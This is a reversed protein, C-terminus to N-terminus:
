TVPLLMMTMDMEVSSMFTVFVPSPSSVVIRTNTLTKYSHIATSMYVRHTPSFRFTGKSKRAYWAFSARVPFSTVIVARMPVSDSFIEENMTVVVVLINRENGHLHNNQM